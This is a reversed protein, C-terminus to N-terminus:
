NSRSRVPSPCLRLLSQSLQCVLSRSLCTSSVRGRAESYAMGGCESGRTGANQAFPRSQGARRSLIGSTPTRCSRPADRSSPSRASVCVMSCLSRCRGACNWACTVALCPLSCVPAFCCASFLFCSSAAALDRTAALSSASRM